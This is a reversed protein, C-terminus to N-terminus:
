TVGGHLVSFIDGFFTYKIDHPFVKESTIELKNEAVSGITRTVDSLFLICEKKNSEEIEHLANDIYLIVEIYKMKAQRSRIRVLSFRDAYQLYYNEYIAYIDAYKKKALECEDHSM